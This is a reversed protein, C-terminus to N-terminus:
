QGMIKNKVPGGYTSYRRLYDCEKGRLSTHEKWMYKGSETGERVLVRKCKHTVGVMRVREGQEVKTDETRM